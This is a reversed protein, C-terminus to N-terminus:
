MAKKAVLAVKEVIPFCSVNKLESFYAVHQQVDAIANWLMPFTVLM